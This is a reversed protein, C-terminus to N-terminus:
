QWLRTGKAVRRLRGVEMYVKRASAHLYTLAATSLIFGFVMGTLVRTLPADPGRNGAVWADRMRMASIMTMVASVIRGTHTARFLDHWNIAIKRGGGDGEGDSRGSGSGGGGSGGGRAARCARGVMIAILAFVVATLVAGYCATRYDNASRLQQAYSDLAKAAALLLLADTLLTAVYLKAELTYRKIDLVPCCRRWM